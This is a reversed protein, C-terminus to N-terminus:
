FAYVSLSPETSLGKRVVIVREDDLIVEDFIDVGGEVELITETHRAETSSDEIGFVLSWICKEATGDSPKFPESQMTKLRRHNFDLLHIQSAPNMIGVRNSLTGMRCGYMLCDNNSQSHGTNVWSTHYAWKYWPVEPVSRAYFRKILARLGSTAEAYHEPVLFVSTPVYLTGASESMQGSSQLQSLHLDIAVLPHQSSPEYAKPKARSRDTPRVNPTCRIRLTSRVYKQSFSPLCFLSVIRPATSTDVTADFHLVEIYGFTDNKSPKGAYDPDNSRPFLLTRQNLLIFSSHWGGVTPTRTVEVGRVWDWVVVWSAIKRSCSRFLIGVLEGVVEFHYSWNPMAGELGGNNAFNATMTPALARPHAKNESMTRVHITCTAFYQATANPLELFVLLDQDPDFIYDQVGPDMDLSWREFGTGSNNSPMRYFELDSIVSNTGLFSGTGFSQAYVGGAYKSSTSHARLGHKRPQIRNPRSWNLYHEKLLKLSESPSIDPRSVLPHTYGLSDLALSFLLRPSASVLGNLARCAQQCSRLDPSGLFALVHLIIEEPLCLLTSM